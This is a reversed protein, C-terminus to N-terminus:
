FRRFCRWFVRWMGGYITEFVGLLVGRLKKFLESFPSNIWYPTVRHAFIACLCRKQNKGRHEGAWNGAGPPPGFICFARSVFGYPFIILIHICIDYGWDSTWSNPPKVPAGLTACHLVHEVTPSTSPTELCWLLGFLCLCEESWIESRDLMSWIAFTKQAAPTRRGGDKPPSAYSRAILKTRSAYMYKYCKYMCVSTHLCVQLWVCTYRPMHTHIHTYICLICICRYILTYIYIYVCVCVCTHTYIYIYIYVYPIDFSTDVGVVHHSSKGEIVKSPQRQRAGRPLFPLSGARVSARVGARFGVGWVYCMGFFLCRVPCPVSRYKLVAYTCM